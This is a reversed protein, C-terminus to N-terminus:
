RLLTIAGRLTRQRIGRLTIEYVECIYFYTGQECDTNNNQNKGDWNIDPDETEYVIKGWRNFIKIEIREVSTYPFPTFLDNFNDFNPTFVNPLSYQSCATDDVCVLNSFESTNGVSDIAVVSYCGVINGNNIHIYSTDSANLVSDLIVLDTEELPSYYLYYKVVDDTCFHNPNTWMLFNQARDCDTYVQLEPPCPPENDVPIGCVIQSFNIIPHVFGPATYEGISKVYYCYEQGNTLSSDVYSTTSTFGISDFSTEDPGRRYIVYVENNWTVNLSWSLILQEDTPQVDLFISSAVQSFGVSGYSQSVLEVRYSFPNGASNLNIGNDMYLTDDLGDKVFIEQLNGGVLGTSRYLKYQYPGPVQITDLETPRSWAVYARGSFLDTSDNSVNTIVPVDRKLIACAEESAYSEAGDLFFATVMYCYQIGQILGIGGNDDRFATDNIRNTEGILVYGTYAPVGTECYGPEFGYFGSRRYIKYGIAKNCDVQDWLLEISTGIAETTLNEPAPSIVKISVTKFNVLSVPFGEDEAKFFLQYPQQQVNSCDTIWSFTTTATDESIAPDPDIQAPNEEVEFPGGSATLTVTSGDPDWARVDFVISSGAEVCTDSIAEIVPPINSCAVIEIQMDRTLSGIRTGNRWEEILIAINYEGQTVPSDWTVTGTFPDIEFIDSTVPYTYGPIDIGGTTKCDILRYSLSDGDVDYAGPNHYYPQNVCGVDIPPNLLVPSNNYGLFPNAVLVSQTYMPVNVSNPINVIGYNRNPDELSLVYTGQSSYTHRNTSAGIEPRYEYVNLSINEPLNTKETRMLVSSTGDGWSITLEPRDAPSPTYTYTIIKVEYTLGEIHRYTIEAARQHTAFLSSASCLFIM